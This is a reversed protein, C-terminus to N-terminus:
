PPTLPPFPSPYFFPATAFAGFVSIEQQPAMERVATLGLLNTHSAVQWGGQFVNKRYATSFAQGTFRQIRHDHSWAYQAFDADMVRGSRFFLSTPTLEVPYQSVVTELAPKAGYCWGCLPDFLYYIKMM